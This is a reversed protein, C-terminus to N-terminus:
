GGPLLINRNWMPKRRIQLMRSDPPHYGGRRCFRYRAFIIPYRYLLVRHSITRPSEGSFQFEGVMMKLKGNEM